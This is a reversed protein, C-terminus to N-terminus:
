AVEPLGRAERALKDLIGILVRRRAETVKPTWLAGQRPQSAALDETVLREVVEIEEDNLKM